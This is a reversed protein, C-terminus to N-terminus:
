YEVYPTKVIEFLKYIKHVLVFSSKRLNEKVKMAVIVAEEKTLAKGVAAKMEKESFPEHITQYISTFTATKFTQTGLTMVNTLKADICVKCINNTKRDFKLWTHLQLWTPEFKRIESSPGDNADTETMDVGDTEQM